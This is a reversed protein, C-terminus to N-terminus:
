LARALRPWASALRLPRSVQDTLTSWGNRLNPVLTHDRTLIDASALQTFGRMPRLRQKLHGHDRELGNTLSESCRPEATPQLTRRAPPYCNAKESTIRTPAAASSALAHEFFARASAADRQDSLYVEVIQGHEDLCRFVYRWRGAIQLLTEDVRWRTGILSRPRRAADIRRPTFAQV